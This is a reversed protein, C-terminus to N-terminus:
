EGWLEQAREELARPVRRTYDDAAFCSEAGNKGDVGPLGLFTILCFLRILIAHGVRSALFKQLSPRM